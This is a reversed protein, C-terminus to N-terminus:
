EDELDLETVAHGRLAQVAAAVEQVSVVSGLASLPAQWTQTHDEFDTLVEVTVWVEGDGRLAFSVSLQESSSLATIIPTQAM